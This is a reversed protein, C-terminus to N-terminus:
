QKEVSAYDTLKLQRGDLFSYQFHVENFRSAMSVPITISRTAAGNEDTRMAMVSETSQYLTCGRSLFNAIPLRFFLLRSDSAGMHFFGFANKAGNALTVDFAKGFEPTKTSIGIAGGCAKGRVLGTLKPTTTSDGLKFRTTILRFSRKGVEGVAHVGYFYGRRLWLGTPGFVTKSSGKPNIRVYYLTADVDAVGERPNELGAVLKAYRTTAFRAVLVDVAPAMANHRVAIRAKGSAAAKLDNVYFNLAIGSKEQLNAIATYNVGAKVEPKASLVTKGQLKVEINYTGPDLSLPGKKETYRFSFLKNGNAFVEVPATLNPIGHIVTLQAKQAIAPAALLLALTLSPIVKM